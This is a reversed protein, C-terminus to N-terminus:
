WGLEAVSIVKSTRESFKAFPLQLTITETSEFGASNYITCYTHTDPKATM